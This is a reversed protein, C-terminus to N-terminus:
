FELRNMIYRDDPDLFSAFYSPKLLQYASAPVGVNGSCIIRGVLEDARGVPEVLEKEFVLM